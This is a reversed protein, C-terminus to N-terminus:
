THREVAHLPLRHDLGCALVIHNTRQLIVRLRATIATRSQGIAAGVERRHCDHRANCQPLIGVTCRRAPPDFVETIPIRPNINFFPRALIPAGSANGSAEFQEEQTELMFYEGQVGWRSIRDFYLGARLECATRDQTWFRRM